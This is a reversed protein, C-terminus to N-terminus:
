YRAFSLQRLRVRARRADKAADGLAAAAGAIPNLALRRTEHMRRDRCVSSGDYEDNDDDGDDDNDYGNAGGGEGNLELLRRRRRRQLKHARASQTFRKNKRGSANKTLWRRWRRRWRRWRRRRRSSCFFSCSTSRRRACGTECSLQSPAGDDGSELTANQKHQPSPPLSPLSSPPAAALSSSKQSRRRGNTHLACACRGAQEREAAASAASELDVVAAMPLMQSNTRRRRLFAHRRHGFLTSSRGSSRLRRTILRQASRMLRAGSAARERDCIKLATANEEGRKGDGSSVVLDIKARVGQRARARACRAGIKIEAGSPARAGFWDILRAAARLLLRRVRVRARARARMAFRVTFARVHMQSYQAAAATRRRTTPRRVRALFQRLTSKRSSVRAGLRRGNIPRNSTM